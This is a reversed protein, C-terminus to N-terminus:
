MTDGTSGSTSFNRALKRFLMQVGAALLKVLFKPPYYPYTPIDDSLSVNDPKFKTCIRMQIPPPSGLMRMRYIPVWHRGKDFNMFVPANCCTAVVRNTVSKDKLKYSKLLSKGTVCQVRDKPFVVYATGGDDGALLPAGPLAALQRAGAQCDDCYCISTVIPNGVLMLEVRRCECSARIDTSSRGPM